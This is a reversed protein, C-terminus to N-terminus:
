FSLCFYDSSFEVYRFHCELKLLEDAFSMKRVGDLFNMDQIKLLITNVVRSVQAEIISMEEFEEKITLSDGNEKESSNSGSLRRGNQTSDKETTQGGNSNLIM